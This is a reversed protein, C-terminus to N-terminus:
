ENRAMRAAREEAHFEWPAQPLVEGTELLTKLNALVAPWGQGVARLDDMSRLPAQSVTLKVIDRYQEIEFTVVSPESTPDDVRKPDDFGFALRHPRDVELVTGAADSVGSGDIRAHDV